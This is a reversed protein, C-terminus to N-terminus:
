GRVLTNKKFLESKFREFIRIGELMEKDSDRFASALYKRTEDIVKTDLEKKDGAMLFISNWHRRFKRYSPLINGPARVLIATQIESAYICAANFHYEISAKISTQSDPSVYLDQAM